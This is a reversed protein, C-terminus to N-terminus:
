HASQVRHIDSVLNMPTTQLSRSLWWTPQHSGTHTHSHTHIHTLTLDAGTDRDVETAQGPWTLRGSMCHTWTNKSLARSCTPCAPTLTSVIIVGVVAEVVQGEVGVLEVAEMDRQPQHCASFPRVQRHSSPACPNEQLDRIGPVSFDFVAINSNCM